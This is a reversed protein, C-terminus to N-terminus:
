FVLKVIEIGFVYAPCFINWIGADHARYSFLGRSLSLSVTVHSGHILQDCPNGHKTWPSFTNRPKWGWLPLVLAESIWTRWQTNILTLQLASTHLPPWRRCGKAWPSIPTWSVMAQIDKNFARHRAWSGQSATYLRPAPWRPHLGHIWPCLTPWQDWTPTCLHGISPCCRLTTSSWVARTWKRRAGGNPEAIRSGCRHRFVAVVKLIETWNVVNKKFLNLCSLLFM